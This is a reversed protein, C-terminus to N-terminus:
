LPYDNLHILSSPMTIDVLSPVDSRLFVSYNVVVLSTPLAKGKVLQDFSKWHKGCEYKRCIEVCEIMLLLETADAM